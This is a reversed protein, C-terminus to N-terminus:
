DGSIVVETLNWLGDIMTFKESVFRGSELDIIGVIASDPEVALGPLDGDYIRLLALQFDHRAVALENSGDVHDGILRLPFRTRSAVSDALGAQAACYFARYFAHFDERGASGAGPFVPPEFPVGCLLANTCDDGTCTSAETLMWRGDVQGFRFLLNYFIATLGDPRDFAPGLPAPSMSTWRDQADFLGGLGASQRDVAKETLDHFNAEVAPDDAIATVPLPDLVYPALEEPTGSLLEAVCMFATRFTTFEASDLDPVPRLSRSHDDELCYIQNGCIQRSGPCPPDPELLALPRDAARDAPTLALRGDVVTAAFLDSGSRDSLLVDDSQRRWARIARLRRWAAPSDARQSSAGAHIPLRDLGLLPTGDSRFEIMRLRGADDIETWASGALPDAPLRDAACAGAISVVVVLGLAARRRIPLTRSRPM